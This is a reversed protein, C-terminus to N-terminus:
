LGGVVTHTPDVPAGGIGEQYLSKVMAPDLSTNYVQVDAISGNFNAYQASTMGGIRLNDQGIGHYLTSGCGSVNA